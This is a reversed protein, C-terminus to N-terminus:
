KFAKQYSPHKQKTYTELLDTVPDNRAVTSELWNWFNSSILKRGQIAPFSSVLFTTFVDDAQILDINLARNLFSCGTNFM